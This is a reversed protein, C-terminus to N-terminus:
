AKTNNGSVVLRFVSHFDDMKEPTSDKMKGVVTYEDVTHEIDFNLKIEGTNKNIFIKKLRERKEQGNVCFDYIAGSLGDVFSLATNEDDFELTYVADDNDFAVNVVSGVRYYACARIPKNMEFCRM